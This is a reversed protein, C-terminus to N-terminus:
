IVTHGELEGLLLAGREEVLRGFAGLLASASVIPAVFYILRLLPTHPYGFRNSQFTFLGLSDFLAEDWGLGVGDVHAEHVFAVPGVAVVLAAALALLVVARARALRLALFLSRVLRHRM